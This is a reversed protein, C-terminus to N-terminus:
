FIIGEFDNNNLFPLLYIPLYIRKGEIRKNYDSFIYAKKIDYKKENLLKTLASHTTYDKGSKIEIPIVGEDEEILFDVEGVKRQNYFYLNFGHTSLEEAAFNEYVSGLNISKENFLIKEERGKFLLSSLLGVDNMYLKFLNRAESIKLPFFPESACNCKLAIGANVLRVFDNEYKRYKATENLEKLIFRKNKNELQSPLLDYIENIILKDKEEYKSADKKYLNIIDKQVDNVLNTNHKSNYEKVADPLGGIVIYKRLEKIMDEHIIEPVVIDNTLYTKLNEIYKEDYKGTSLLYEEFDMPYMTVSELFGVPQSHVDKLTVGLLSGSMIYTYKNEEVLSKIYTLLNPVEIIEDIFIATTGNLVKRIFFEIAEKFGHAGKVNSFIYKAREDTILNIVVLNDFHKKAYEIIATTKGVQRAGEVLLVRRKNKSLWRDFSKYVKRYYM